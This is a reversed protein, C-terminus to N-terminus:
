RGHDNESVKTAFEEISFYDRDSIGEGYYIGGDTNLLISAMDDGLDNHNMFAVIVNLVKIVDDRTVM